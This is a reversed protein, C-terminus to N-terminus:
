GGGSSHNFDVMNYDQLDYWMWIGYMCCSRFSNDYSGLSPAYDFYDKYSGSAGVNTYCTTGVTDRNDPVANKNPRAATASAAVVFLVVAVSTNLHLMSVSDLLQKAFHQIEQVRNHVNRIM